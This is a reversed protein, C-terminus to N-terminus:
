RHYYGIPRVLIADTRGDPHIFYNPKSGVRYGVELLYRTIEPHCPRVDKLSEVDQASLTEINFGASIGGLGQSSVKVREVPLRELEEPSYTPISTMDYLIDDYMMVISISVITGNHRRFQRTAAKFTVDGTWPLEALYCDELDPRDSDDPLLPDTTVVIIKRSLIPQEKTPLHYFVVEGKRKSRLLSGLIRGSLGKDQAVKSPDVTHVFRRNHNTKM